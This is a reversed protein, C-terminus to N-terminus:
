CVALRNKPGTAGQQSTRDQVGNLYHCQRLTWAASWHHCISCRPPRIYSLGTHQEKPNTRLCTPHPLALRVLGLAEGTVTTKTSGLWATNHVNFDGTILVYDSLHRVALLTEELYEMISIDSESSSGSRYLACFVIKHHDCTEILLWTVEFDHCPVTDLHRFCLGAKLWVAVGGGHATRDKRVAPCYTHIYLEYDCPSRLPM